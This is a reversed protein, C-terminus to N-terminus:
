PHKARPLTPLGLIKPIKPDKSSFFTYSLTITKVDSLGPDQDIAPDIFFQVPLELVRKPPIPQEAFCFCHIKNFYPAAKEPTVNYIAIGLGLNPSLNEVRYVALGTEGTRVTMETQLPEFRWPMGGNVDANFRIKVRRQGTTKSAATVLKPTGGFGTKQCFLRYLPVSAFSFALMLLVLGGLLIGTTGHPRPPRM